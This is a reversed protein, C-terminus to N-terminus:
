KLKHTINHVPMIKRCIESGSDSLRKLSLFYDQLKLDLRDMTFRILYKAFIDYSKQQDIVVAGYKMWDEEQILKL